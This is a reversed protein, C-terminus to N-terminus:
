DLGKLFTKLGANPLPLALFVGSGLDSHADLVVDSKSPPATPTTTNSPTTPPVRVRQRRFPFSPNDTVRVQPPQRQQEPSRARGPGLRRSRRITPLTVHNRVLFLIISNRHKIKVLISPSSTHDGCRWTTWQGVKNM